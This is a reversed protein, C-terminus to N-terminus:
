RETNYRAVQELKLFLFKRAAAGLGLALTLISLSIVIPHLRIGWPTYNLILGVLPVLALSLGISLALRELQSLDSTKPYLLEILAAGPLYLVFLSGFVYRLYTFPPVQPTLYILFLILIILGVLSWFWIVHSSLLYTVFSRPPQPDIFRILDLDKLKYLLRAVEYRELELKRSAENVIDGVSGGSEQIIKLLRRLPEDLNVPDPPRDRKVM